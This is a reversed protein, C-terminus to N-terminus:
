IPPMMLCAFANFAKALGLNRKHSVVFAGAKKAEEATNDPSGDDVVLVQYGMDVIEKVVKSISQEEKYAPITVLIM